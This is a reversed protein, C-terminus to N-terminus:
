GVAKRVLAAIKEEEAPTLEILAFSTPWMNGDDLQADANFGLTMYREEKSFIVGRFFVVVKGNKTYAPMGYWVRPVLSPGNAKIIAHLREGMIRYHEPLQAINALVAAEGVPGNEKPGGSTSKKAQDTTETM